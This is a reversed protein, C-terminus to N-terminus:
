KLTIKHIKDVPISYFKEGEPVYRNPIEVTEAYKKLASDTIVWAEKCDARLVYFTLNKEIKELLKKKRYPIRVDKWSEPWEGKWSYKIETESFCLTGDESMSEIDCSYKEVVNTIIHKKSRLYKSIAGKSKGDSRNYLNRDFKKTKGLSNGAM